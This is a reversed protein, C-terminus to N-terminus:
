SIPTRFARPAVVLFTPKKNLRCVISAPINIHTKDLVANNVSHVGILIVIDLLSRSNTAFLFKPGRLMSCTLRGVMIALVATINNTVVNVQM